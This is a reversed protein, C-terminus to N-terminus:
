LSWRSVSIVLLGLCIVAVAGLRQRWSDMERFRFISLVTAIVIGANTYAVAVAAPMWGMAHIVLAYATGLGLGGSILYRLKPRCRPLWQRTEMRSTVSLALFALLYGVTVFGMKSGFSPLYSVAVKDSLSYISTCLAALLAWPIAHRGDGQKSSMAMFYLGTVSISIGTWGWRGIDQDFFLLTWIAILLPSSRAIPYVLSVAAHHYARRLALFYVTNSAATIALTTYLSTQWNADQWLSWLAWPGLLLLHALLGWWLFNCRSEVHRALLNWSVHMLVSATIALYALQEM